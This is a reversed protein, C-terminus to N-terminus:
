APGTPRASHAQSRGAAGWRATGAEYAARVKLSSVQKQYAAEKESWESAASSQAAALEDRLSQLEQRAAPPPPCLPETLHPSALHQIDAQTAPGHAPTSCM